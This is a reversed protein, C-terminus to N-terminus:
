KQGGQQNMARIVDALNFLRRYGRGIPAGAEYPIKGADAARIVSLRSCGLAEAVQRANIKEQM